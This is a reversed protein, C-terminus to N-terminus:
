ASEEALVATWQCHSGTFEFETVARFYSGTSAERVCLEPNDRVTQQAFELWPVTPHNDLFELDEVSFIQDTGDPLDEETM